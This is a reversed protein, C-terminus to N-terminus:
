DLTGGDAATHNAILRVLRPVRKVEIVVSKGPGSHDLLRMDFDKFAIHHDPIIQTMVSFSQMPKDIGLLEYHGDIHVLEAGIGDSPIPIGAGFTKFISKQLIMENGTWEFVDTVPSLNLSHTFTVEFSESRNIPLAFLLRKSTKATLCEEPWFLAPLLVILLIFVLPATRNLISGKRPDKKFVLEQM